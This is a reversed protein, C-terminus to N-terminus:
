LDLRLNLPVTKQDGLKGASIALVDSTAFVSYAGAFFNHSVVSFDADSYLFGILVFRTGGSQLDLGYGQGSSEGLLRQGGPVSLGFCNEARLATYEAPEDFFAPALKKQDNLEKLRAFADTASLPQLTTQAGLLTSLTLVYGVILTAKM